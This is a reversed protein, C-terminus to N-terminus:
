LYGAMLFWCPFFILILPFPFPLWFSFVSSLRPLCFQLSVFLSALSSYPGSSGVWVSSAPTAPPFVVGADGGGCDCSGEGLGLVWCGAGLAPGRRQSPLRLLQPMVRVILNAGRVQQMPTASPSAPQDFGRCVASLKTHFM